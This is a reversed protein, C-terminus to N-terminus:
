GKGPVELADVLEEVVVYGAEDGAGAGLEQQQVLRGRGVRRARRAGRRGNAGVRRAGRGLLGDLHEEGLDVLVPDLGDHVGEVLM